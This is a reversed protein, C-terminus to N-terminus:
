AARLAHIDRDMQVDYAANWADRAHPCNKTDLYGAKVATLITHRLSEAKGQAELSATTRNTVAASLSALTTTPYAIDNMKWSDTGIAAISSGVMVAINKGSIRM